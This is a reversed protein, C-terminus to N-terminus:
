YCSWLGNWLRIEAVTLKSFHFLCSKRVIMKQDIIRVMTCWCFRVMKKHDKSGKSSVVVGPAYDFNTM